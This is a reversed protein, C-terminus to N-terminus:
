HDTNWGGREEIVQGGRGKGQGESVEGKGEMVKGKKRGKGKEGRDDKGTKKM